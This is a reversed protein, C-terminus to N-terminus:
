IARFAKTMPLLLHLSLDGVRRAKPRMLSGDKEDFPAGALPNLDRPDHNRKSV